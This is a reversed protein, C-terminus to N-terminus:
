KTTKAPKTLVAASTLRDIRETSALGGLVQAEANPAIIITSPTQGLNLGSLLGDYRGVDDVDIFYPRVKGHRRSIERQIVRKMKRDEVHKKAPSYVLVVAVRRAALDKQIKTIVKNAHAQAASVKPGAAAKKAAAVAKAKKAAAIRALSAASPTTAAPASPTPAAAAPTTGKTPDEEGTQQNAASQEIKASSSDASNRANEVTKGLATEAAAGGAAARPTTAATAVPATPSAAVDSSKPRLVFFGLALVLVMALVIQM